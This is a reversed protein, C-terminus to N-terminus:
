KVVDMGCTSLHRKRRMACEAGSCRREDEEAWYRNERKENRCRFSAMIKREKASERALYEAIEETM